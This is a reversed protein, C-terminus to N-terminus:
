KGDDNTMHHHGSCGSEIQARIEQDTLDALHSVAGKKIMEEELCAQRGAIDAGSGPIM